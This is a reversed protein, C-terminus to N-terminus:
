KVLELVKDSYAAGDHIDHTSFIVTISRDHALTQLTKLVMIRNQVDLFATPEDLMIVNADRLLATATCALQFEGDSTQSLDKEGLGSIGLIGLATDIRAESAPDPRHFLSTSPSAVTRAFERVTFGKVKPIRSPVMVVRGGSIFDGSLPRIQGSLTKMLTTKGSGNLGKLMVCCGDEFRFDLPGAVKALGHGIILQRAKIM